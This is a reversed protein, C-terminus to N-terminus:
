FVAILPNQPMAEFRDLGPLHDAGRLPAFRCMVREM